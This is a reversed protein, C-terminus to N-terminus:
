KKGLKHKIFDILDFKQKSDGYFCLNMFWNILFYSLALGGTLLMIVTLINLFTIGPKLHFSLPHNVVVNSYVYTNDQYFALVILQYSEPILSISPHITYQMNIEQKFDLPYDILAM